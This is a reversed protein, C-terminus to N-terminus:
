INIEDLSVKGSVDLFNKVLYRDVMAGGCQCMCDVM